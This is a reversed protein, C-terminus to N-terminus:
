INLLLGCTQRSLQKQIDGYFFNAIDQLKSKLKRTLNENETGIGFPDQRPNASPQNITFSEVVEATKHLGKRRLEATIQNVDKKM